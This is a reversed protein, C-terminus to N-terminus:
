KEILFIIEKNKEQPNKMWKNTWTMDSMVNKKYDIQITKRLKGHKNLVENLEAETARGNSSYSLAIYRTHAKEILDDIAKVVLFRGDTDRRYEEFVSASVTDSTDKRRLVKGFLDPKDNRIISKWVHYYSAYRVRSPPMKENNSGYPPDFYCFDANLTKITDFIDGQIVENDEHNEFVDPVKLKMKKYSRPAWNKLYSSYHGLTSDVADMAFILATLAVSKEVPSLNLTDIEDRIADLKRTNHVQWPKKTGNNQIASGNYDFGGYHQTFWGDYGNLSNLHDILAHYYNRNKENKLYCTGFVFSWDSIDSSIVRYGLKAFAQSVRTTGSFGDFITRIDLGDTLSIIHPLIKLKSGVYKIGQTTPTYTHINPFIEKNSIALM